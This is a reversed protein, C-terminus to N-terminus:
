VIAGPGYHLDLGDHLEIVCDPFGSKQLQRGACPLMSASPLRVDEGHGGAVHTAFIGDGDFDVGCTVRGAACRRRPRTLGARHCCCKVFVSVYEERYLVIFEFLFLSHSHCIIYSLCLSLM